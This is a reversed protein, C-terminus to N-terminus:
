YRRASPASRGTWGSSPIIEILSRPAPPRVAGLAAIAEAAQEKSLAQQFLQPASQAFPGATLLTAAAITIIIFRLTHKM